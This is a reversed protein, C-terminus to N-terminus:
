LYDKIDEYFLPGQIRKQIIQKNIFFTEPVGILGMQFAIDGSDIIVYEYPNGNEEIWKEFNDLDDRFNIGIIKIGNQQMELLLPHEILCPKCWSAFFNIVYLNDFENEDISKNNYFDNVEFIIKPVKKLTNKKSPESFYFFVCVTLILIGFIPLIIIKRM